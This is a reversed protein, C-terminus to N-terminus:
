RRSFGISYVGSQECDDCDIVMRLRYREDDYTITCQAQTLSGCDECPVTTDLLANHGIEDVEVYATDAERGESDYPYSVRFIGDDKLSRIATQIHQKVSYGTVLDEHWEEWFEHEPDLLTGEEKKSSSKEGFEVIGLMQPYTAEKGYYDIERGHMAARMRTAVEERLDQMDKM